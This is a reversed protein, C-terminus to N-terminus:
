NFLFFFFSFLFLFPFFLLSLFFFYFYFLLALKQFNLNRKQIKNSSLFSIRDKEIRFSFNKSRKRWVEGLFRLLQAENESPFESQSGTKPDFICRGGCLFTEFLRFCWMRQRLVINSILDIYNAARSLISGQLNSKITLNHWNPRTCFIWPDKKSCRM